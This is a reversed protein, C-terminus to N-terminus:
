TTGPKKDSPISEQPKEPSGPGAPDPPPPSTQLASEFRLGEAVPTNAPRLGDSAPQPLTDAPIPPEELPMPLEDPYTQANTLAYAVFVAPLVLPLQSYGGIEGALVVAAFPARAVGALLACMGALTATEVPPALAPAALSLILGLLSGMTLAPTLYG